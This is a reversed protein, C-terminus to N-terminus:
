DILLERRIHPDPFIGNSRLQVRARARARERARGKQALPFVPSEPV